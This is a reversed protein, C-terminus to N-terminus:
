PRSSAPPTPRTACPILRTVSAHRYPRPALELERGCGDIGHHPVPKSTDTLTARKRDFLFYLISAGEGVLVLAVILIMSALARHLDTEGAANPGAQTLAAFPGVLVGFVAIKWTRERM